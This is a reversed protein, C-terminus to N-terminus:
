GRFACEREECGIEIKKMGFSLEFLEAYKQEHHFKWFRVEPSDFKSSHDFLMNLNGKKQLKCSFLTFLTLHFKNYMNHFNNLILFHTSKLKTFSGKGERFNKRRNMIEETKHLLSYKKIHLFSYFFNHNIM